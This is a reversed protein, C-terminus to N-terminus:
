DELSDEIEQFIKKKRLNAMVVSVILALISIAYASWVFVGKGDMYFFEQM